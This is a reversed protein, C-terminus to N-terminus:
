QLLALIGFGQGGQLRQRTPMRGAGIDPLQRRQGMLSQIVGEGRLLGKQATNIKTGLGMHDGIQAIEIATQTPSPLCQGAIVLCQPHRRIMKRGLHVTAAGLGTALGAAAGSTLTRQICLIGMPGVPAAVTLGVGVGAILTAVSQPLSM